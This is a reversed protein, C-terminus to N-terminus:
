LELVRWKWYDKREKPYGRPNCVLRTKGNSHIIDLPSHTHGYLWMDPKYSNILGDLNNCFYPNLVNGKYFPAICQMSPLWHTIVVKKQEPSNLEESIFAINENHKEVHDKPHWITDGKKTVLFDSIAMAYQTYSYEVYGPLVLQSYLPAGIFRIGSIVVSGPNLITVNSNRENWADYQKHLELIDLGYSEHNGPVYLVPKNLTEAWLVGRMGKDIDGALIILDCEPLPPLDQQGLFEHHIDSALAIKM